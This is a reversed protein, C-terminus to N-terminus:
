SRDEPLHAAVVDAAALSAPSPRRANLALCAETLKIVHDDGHAVARAVRDLAGPTPVAKGGDFPSTAYASVLAAGSQWAYRVLAQATADSVHPLLNLAAAMGTVGHTFVIATLPSRVESVAVRAFAEAAELATAEPARETDIMDVVGDFGPAHVLQGLATTIAGGNQRKADPILPVRALAEFPSLKLSARREAPLEVYTSAWLALADALEQLRLPTEDARLARAAHATRIVGHTAAAAFGPALRAAWRDCARRWGERAIEAAVLVSWDAFNRQGLAARWDAVAIPASAASRVRVTKRHAGTWSVATAGEGMAALAEAVMPVHSTMGNTLDPGLGVLLALAEDHRSYDAAM